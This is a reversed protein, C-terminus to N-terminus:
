SIHLEEGKCDPWSFESDVNVWENVIAGSFHHHKQTVINIETFCQSIKQQNQEIQLTSPSLTRAKQIPVQAQLELFLCEVVQAVM